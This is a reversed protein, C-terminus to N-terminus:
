AKLGTQSRLKQADKYKRIAKGAPPPVENKEALHVIMSQSTLAKMKREDTSRSRNLLQSRIAISPTLAESATGDPVDSGPECPLKAIPAAMNAEDQRLNPQTGNFTDDGIKEQTEFWCSRQLAISKRLNTDLNVTYKVLEKAKGKTLFEKTKDLLSYLLDM